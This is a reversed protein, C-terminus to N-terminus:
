KAIDGLGVILERDRKGTAPDQLVLALGDALFQSTIYPSPRYLKFPLAVEIIVVNVGKRFAAPKAGVEGGKVKDWAGEVLVDNVWIRSPPKPGVFGVKVDREAPASVYAAALITGAGPASQGFVADVVAAGWIVGETDLRKWGAAAAQKPDAPLRAPPGALVTLLEDDGAAALADGVQLAQHRLWWSQEFYEEVLVTHGAFERGDVKVALPLWHNGPDAKSSDAWTVAQRIQAQEVPAVRRSVNLRGEAWGPRGEAALEVQCDKGTLNEVMFVYEGGSVSGIRGAPRRIWRYLDTMWKAQAVTKGAIEARVRIGEDNDRRGLGAQAVEKAYDVGNYVALFQDRHMCFAAEFPTAQGGKVRLPMRNTGALVFEAPIGLTVIGEQEGEVASRLEGRVTAVIVDGELRPVSEMELVYPVPKVGLAAALAETPVGAKDPQYGKLKEIKAQGVAGDTMDRVEISWVGDPETVAVPLKIVVHGPGTEWEAFGPIVNGDPGKASVQFTHADAIAAGGAQRSVGLYLTQGGTVQKAPIPVGLLAPTVAFAAAPDSKVLSLLTGNGVELKIEVYRRARGPEV